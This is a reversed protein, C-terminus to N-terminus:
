GKTLPAKLLGNSAQMRLLHDAAQGLRVLDDGQAQVHIYPGETVKITVRGESSRQVRNVATASYDTRDISGRPGAALGVIRNETIVYAHGSPDVLSDIVTGAACMAFLLFSVMGTMALGHRLRQGSFGLLMVAFGLAALILSAVLAQGPTFTGFVLDPAGYGSWLVTEQLSAAVKAVEDAPVPTSLSQLYSTVTDAFPM